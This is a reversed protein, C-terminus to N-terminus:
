ARFGIQAPESKAAIPAEIDEATITSLQSKTASELDTEILRCSQAMIANEIISRAFRGNGFDESKRAVEFIGRLKEVADGALTMKKNSAILNAIDCLEDVSYDSFPIHHSIRSRLGPNKQLFKEMKDPYGAFIVILSSRRNEMEQVITNIAEDGFMGDKDDVLSYAEDIFLVGGMARDFAKTVLPATHGVYKGVLDSRGVEVLHGSSLIENERMIRAFLRAVTTKASGPNGTFMMHMSPKERDMDRNTLFKQVKNFNLAKRIMKKAENLGVLSMLEEYADGRAEDKVMSTKAMQMKAYQPYITMKLKRNHWEKYISRIENAYYTEKPEVKEFISEDVPMNKEAAFMKLLNRTRKADAAKEQIEVFSFDGLKEFVFNQLPTCEQPLLVVLLTQDGHNTASECIREIQDLSGDAILDDMNIPVRFDIVVTGGSNMNFLAEYYKHSFNYHRNIGIRTFRQNNIRKKKLLINLLLCETELCTPKDDTKIMYHVPHGQIGQFKSAKKVRELEAKLDKSTLLKNANKEIEKISTCEIIGEEFSTRDLGHRGLADLGFISRIEDNDDIFDNRYASKLTNAFDTYTIESVKIESTRIGIDKVYADFEFKPDFDDKAIAILVVEGNQNIKAVAILLKGRSEQIISNTKSIAADRFARSHRLSGIEDKEETLASDVAKIKAQIKYFRM